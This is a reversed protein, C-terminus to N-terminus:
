EHLELPLGDPDRFFTMKKGTFEDIRVPETEIGKGELWTVAEEIRKVRFALHRLGCAEPNTVRKPPNRMGFLELECDGLKLDLKYDGREPRRNERVVSFGLKDVYFERSRQYDSVILAVHHIRNLKLSERKRFRESLRVYEEANDVNGRIEEETLPRRIVAPNGYVMMGDPIVKNQTILTGAGIICNKGVKVGNLLIAGMGIVTNDGIECSHLIASHGVTVGKGLIVPMDFFVHVVTQDQINSGEGIVVPALDGRLVAHHWISVNKELTVDGEVVATDFVVAESDIKPEKEMRM